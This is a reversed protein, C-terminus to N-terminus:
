EYKSLNKMAEVLSDHIYTMSPDADTSWTDGESGEDNDAGSWDSEDYEALEFMWWLNGQPDIFRALKGGYFDTPKTAVEAGLSVATELKKDIDNVYVQLLSPTHKWGDKRDFIIM